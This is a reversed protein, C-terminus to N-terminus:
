FSLSTYIMSLADHLLVIILASIYRLMAICLLCTPFIVVLCINLMSYFSTDQILHYVYIHELMTFGLCFYMSYVYM